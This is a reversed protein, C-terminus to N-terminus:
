AGFGCNHYQEIIKSAEPHATYGMGLITVLSLVANRILHQEAALWQHLIETQTTRKLASFRCFHNTMPLVDVLNVLVKVQNRNSGEMNTLMQDFFRDLGAASGDLSCADGAPYAAGAFATIFAAEIKNISVYNDAPSIRWWSYATASASIVISATSAAGIALIQRRTIKNKM